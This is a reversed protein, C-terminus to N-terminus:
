TATHMSNPRGIVGPAAVGRSGANSGPRGGCSGPRGARPRKRFRVLICFNPGPSKPAASDTAPAIAPQKANLDRLYEAVFRAQKATLGAMDSDLTGHTPAPQSM